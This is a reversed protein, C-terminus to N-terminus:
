FEYPKYTKNLILSSNSIFLRLENLTNIDEINFNYENSLLIKNSFLSIENTLKSILLKLDNVRKLHLVKINERFKAFLEQSKIVDKILSIYKLKRTFLDDNIIYNNFLLLTEPSLNFNNIDSLSNVSGMYNNNNNFDEEYITQQDEEIIKSEIKNNIISIMSPTRLIKNLNPYINNDIM